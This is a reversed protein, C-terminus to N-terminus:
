DNRRPISRSVSYCINEHNGVEESSLAKSAYVITCRKLRPDVSKGSGNLLMAGVKFFGSYVNPRVQFYLSIRNRFNGTCM